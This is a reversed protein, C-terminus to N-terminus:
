RPYVKMKELGHRVYGRASGTLLVFLEPISNNLIEIARLFIDPGKVMKPILGEKWGSGDKQFSGIVMANM